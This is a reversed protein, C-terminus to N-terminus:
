CKELADYARKSVYLKGRIMSLDPIANVKGEAHFEIECSKWDVKYSIPRHDFHFMTDEGLAERAAEGTIHFQKFQNELSHIRYIM